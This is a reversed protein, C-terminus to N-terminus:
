KISDKWLVPPQINDYSVGISSNAGWFLEVILLLFYVGFGLLVLMVLWKFYKNIIKM